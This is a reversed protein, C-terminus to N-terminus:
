ILGYIQNENNNFFIILIKKVKFIFQNLYAIIRM